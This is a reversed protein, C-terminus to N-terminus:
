EEERQHAASLADFLTTSFRDLLVALITMLLAFTVTTNIAMGTVDLDHSRVIETVAIGAVLAISLVLVTYINTRGSLLGALVLPLTAALFANGSNALGNPFLTGLITLTLLLSTIWVAPQLRGQRVLWLTILLGVFIVSYAIVSVALRDDGSATLVSIPLGVVTGVLLTLNVTQFLLAQRRRVPDTVVINQLWNQM